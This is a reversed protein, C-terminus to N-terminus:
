LPKSAHFTSAPFSFQHMKGSLCYKCHTLGNDSHSPCSINLSSLAVDLVKNSPHGMRHDWLLWNNAKNVLFAAPFLSEISVHYQKSSSKFNVHPLSSIFNKSYIPYVGNESLGKYLLRGM